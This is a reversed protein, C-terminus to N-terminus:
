AHGNFVSTESRIGDFMEKQYDILVLASEQHTWVGLNNNNM